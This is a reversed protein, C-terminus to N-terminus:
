SGPKKQLKSAIWANVGRGEQAFILAISANSGFGGHGNVFIGARFAADHEIEQGAANIGLM